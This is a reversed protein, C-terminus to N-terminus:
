AVQYKGPSIFKNYNYLISDSTANGKFTGVKNKGTRKSEKKKAAILSNTAAPATGGGTTDTPAM